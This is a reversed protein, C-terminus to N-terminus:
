KKIFWATTIRILKMPTASKHLLFEISCYELIGIGCYGL